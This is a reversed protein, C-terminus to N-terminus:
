ATVGVQKQEVRRAARRLTRKLEATTAEQLKLRAREASKRKGLRQYFEFRGKWYTRDHKM